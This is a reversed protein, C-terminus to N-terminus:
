KWKEEALLKVGLEDIQIPAIQLQALITADSDRPMLPARKHLSWQEAYAALLVEQDRPVLVEPLTNRRVPVDGVPSTKAGRFQRPLVDNKEATSAVLSSQNQPPLKVKPPANTKVSKEVLENGVNAHRVARAAFFAVVVVAATALVFRNTIWSNIPAGTEDLRARVRPLLSVPVDANVKVHLGADISAFLNQEEAFAARCSDCSELHARLEGQPEVGSAAAEILAGKDHEFPM